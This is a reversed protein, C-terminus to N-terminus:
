EGIFPSSLKKNDASNHFKASQTILSISTKQESVKIQMRFLFSQARRWVVYTKTLSSQKALNRHIHAECCQRLLMCRKLSKRLPVSESGSMVGRYMVFYFVSRLYRRNALAETPFCMFVTAHHSNDSLCM